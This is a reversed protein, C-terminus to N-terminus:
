PRIGLERLVDETDAGLPAAPGPASRARPRAIPVPRCVAMTPGTCWAATRTLSIDLLWRGGQRLHALTAAAAVLGSLPDAIADGCFYPVGGACAVLGGAVAADDGFGIRERGEPGRGHGTLSVWVRPRDSTLVEAALLGLQELARPRSAEIVVDAQRVLAGLAARGAEGHFDLAVSRKSTNLLEFFAAPGRRAGDPRRSSEVKIVTAGTEALLSGCLPGAWLSSLDAVVLGDVSTTPEAAAVRRAVVPRRPRSADGPALAAVAMGLTAGREVLPGVARTAVHREIQPWPDDETPQELWAPVLEHDEPRALAVAMWGDAARMLRTTGGCSTQGARQLDSTAAREGLLALPDVDLSAGMASAHRAIDEGLQIARPVLGAPPGLAPGDRPGTLAMAGSAAWRRLDAIPQVHHVRRDSGNHDGSPISALDLGTEAARQAVIEM